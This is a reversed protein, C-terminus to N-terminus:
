SQNTSRLASLMPEIGVEAVDPAAGYREYIVRSRAWACTV